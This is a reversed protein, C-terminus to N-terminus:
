SDPRLSMVKTAILSRPETSALACMSRWSVLWPANGPVTFAPLSKMSRPLFDVIPWFTLTNASRSGALRGHFSRSISTTSSHVPMKVEFSAAPLCRVAPAFFTSIEAGAVPASM